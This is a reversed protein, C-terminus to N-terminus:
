PPPVLVLRILTADIAVAIALGIGLQKVIALDGTALGAFVVIILAAATTITRGTRQM